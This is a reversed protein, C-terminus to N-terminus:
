KAGENARRRVHYARITLKPVLCVAQLISHSTAARRFSPLIVLWLCIRM